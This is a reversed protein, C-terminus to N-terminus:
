YNEYIRATIPCDAKAKAPSRRSITKELLKAENCKPLYKQFTSYILTASRRRTVNYAILNKPLSFAGLLFPGGEPTFPPGCFM